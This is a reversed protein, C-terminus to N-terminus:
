ATVAIATISSPTSVKLWLVLTASYGSDSPATAIMAEIMPVKKTREADPFTSPASYLPRIAEPTIAAPANAGIM